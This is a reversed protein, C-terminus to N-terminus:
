EGQRVFLATAAEVKVAKIKIVGAPIPAGHQRDFGPDDVFGTFEVGM